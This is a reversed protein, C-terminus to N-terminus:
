SLEIQGVQRFRDSCEHCLSAAFVLAEAQQPYLTAFARWDSSQENHHLCMQTFPEGDIQNIEGIALCVLTESVFERLSDFHDRCLRLKSRASLAGNVVGLYASRQPGSYRHSGVACPYIAM